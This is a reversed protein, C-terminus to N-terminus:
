FSEILFYDFYYQSIVVIIYKLKGTKGQAKAISDWVKVAVNKYGGCSKEYLVPYKQVEIILREEFSM